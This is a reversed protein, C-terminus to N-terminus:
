WCIGSKFKIWNQLKIEDSQMKEILMPNKEIQKSLYEMTGCNRKQSFSNIYLTLFMLLLLSKFTDIKNMKSM